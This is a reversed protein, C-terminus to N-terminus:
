SYVKEILEILRSRHVGVSFRNHFDEYAAAAFQNRLEIDSLLLISKDIFDKSSKAVFGTAGNQIVEYVAPGWDASVTPVMNAAAEIIVLGFGEIRSSLWLLDYNRYVSKDDTFGKLTVCNGLGRAHIEDSLKDFLPGDGYIDLEFESVSQRVENAYDLLLLPNKQEVLRGVFCARFRSRSPLSPRPLASDDFTNYMFTSPFRAAGKRADAENRFVTLRPPAILMSQARGLINQGWFYEYSTHIELIYAIKRSLFAAAAPAVAIVKKGSLLKATRSRAGPISLFYRFASSLAFLFGKVDGGRLHTFLKYFRNDLESDLLTVTKVQLFAPIDSPDSRFISLFTIDFIDALENVFDVYTAVLGGDKKTPIKDFVIVIEDRM